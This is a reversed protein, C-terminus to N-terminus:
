ELLELDPLGAAKGASGAGDNSPMDTLLKEAEEPELLFGPGVAIAGQFCRGANAPLPAPVWDGILSETLDPGIGAVELGDLVFPKPPETPDDIWNVLSVHVKAEGPWKQSSVADTIVGGQDIVYQLSASRARNQAISNTGVLGARQGPQLHDAAKRFWYTCFDKIGVGFQKSLWKVYEDGLKSRLRQSGLFPPNGIIADCEPWDVALADARRIGSLNVLPLPDEAEGYREIMQRHGMWLVVRAISVARHEVDIGLLNTLPYYPWPGPPTPLGKDRALARIREKLEYELGRLERYAVYLFNGCGCAPDLVRFSCLDDLLERGVTPSAVADIRERWPRVITPTVIKMIDVEHTYHMGLEDRRGKGLLGELLSGFITPDVKAWDYRSAELLMQLEARNLDVEAPDVFLDGNVYATGALRGKRNHSGKQNLVRYLHGLEAAPSREPEDLLLQATLQLPRGQLMELDEAFLCWVTQMVFRDLEEAPAAGRDAMSEFMLAVQRAATTTLTRHQEVFTAEVHRGVLFSLVEYRDALDALSVCIYDAWAQCTIVDRLIDLLAWAPPDNIESRSRQLLCGGVRLCQRKHARANPGLPLFVLVAAKTLPPPLLSARARLHALREDAEAAVCGRVAQSFSELKSPLMRIGARIFLDDHECHIIVKRERHQRGPNVPGPGLSM